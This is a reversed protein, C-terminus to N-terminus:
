EHTALLLVPYEGNPFPGNIVTLLYVKAAHFFVEAMLHTKTWEDPPRASAEGLEEISATLDNSHGNRWSRESLLKEIAEGRKVLIRQSLTGKEEAQDRWESLATVEAIALLQL